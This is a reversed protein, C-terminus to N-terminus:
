RIELRPFNNLRLMLSKTTLTKPYLRVWIVDGDRDIVRERM